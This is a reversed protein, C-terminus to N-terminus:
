SNSASTTLVSEPHFQVGELKYRGHRFGMILRRRNTATVALERPLSQTSSSRHYRTARFAEATKRFVGKGAHLIESDQRSLTQACPHNEASLRASPRIAWAFV